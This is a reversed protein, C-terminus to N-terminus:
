LMKDLEAVLLTAWPHCSKFYFQCEMEKEAMEAPVDGHAVARLHGVGSLHRGHPCRAHGGGRSGPVGRRGDPVPLPVLHRVPEVLNSVIKRVM